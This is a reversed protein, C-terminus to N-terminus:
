HCIIPNSLIEFKECYAYELRLFNQLLHIKGLRATGVRIFNQFFPINQEHGRKRVQM